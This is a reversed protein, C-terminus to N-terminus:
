TSSADYLVLICLSYGLYPDSYQNQSWLSKWVGNLHHNTPQNIRVNKFVERTCMISGFCELSVPQQSISMILPLLRKMEIPFLYWDFQDVIFDIEDFANGLRQSLECTIFVLTFAFIGCLIMLLVPIINGHHMQFWHVIHFFNLFLNLLPRLDESQSTKPYEVIEVQIIVFAGSIAFLSWTFLSM